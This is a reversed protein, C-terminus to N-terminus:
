PLPLTLVFRAGQGPASHVAVSGGLQDLTKKVSMLGIGTGRGGKTSVFNEFLRARLEEAMGPGNDAVDYVLESGQLRISLVVRGNPTGAEDLAEVANTLLNLLCRHLAEPDLLAAPLDPGADLVLAVGAAAAKDAALRLAERAPQAPDCPRPRLEAPRAYDLLDMALDRIRAVDRGIMEWGRRLIERDDQKLGTELVYIGGELGGAINRIAHALEAVTQGVAALREAALLQRTKEAVLRELHETHERLQRRLERREAARQLAVDLAEPDVPKTLFDGAGLRLSAVALAMDGHGTLMLVETDPWAAKIRRLLELGDMGPMRIDSIVIGPRAEPALALLQELAEAGSAATSVAHGADALTLGLVTRIGEEDDVLLLAPLQDNM